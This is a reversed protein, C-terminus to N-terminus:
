YYYSKNFKELEKINGLTMRMKEKQMYRKSEEMFKQYKEYPHDSRNRRVELNGIRDGRSRSRRNAIKLNNYRNKRARGISPEAMSRFRDKISPQRERSRRIKIMSTQKTKSFFGITNKVKHLKAFIKLKKSKFINVPRKIKGTKPKSTSRSRNEFFSKGSISLPKSKAKSSDSSFRVRFKRQKKQSQTKRGKTLAQKFKMAGKIVMAGKFVNMSTSRVKQNKIKYRNDSKRIKKKKFRKRKEKFWILTEHNIYDPLIRYERKSLIQKLGPLDFGTIKDTKLNISYMFAKLPYKPEKKKITDALLELKTLNEVMLFNRKSDEAKFINENKKLISLFKKNRTLFLVLSTAIKRLDIQQSQLSKLLFNYDIKELTEEKHISHSLKLIKCSIELIKQLPKTPM